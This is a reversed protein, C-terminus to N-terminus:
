SSIFHVLDPNWGQNQRKSMTVTPLSKGHKKQSYINKNSSHKVSKRRYQIALWCHSPKLHVAFPSLWVYVHMWEGGFKGGMWAAVYCQAFNWTGYLLDKNTIWKLCLLTYMAMGFKRAIGEEGQKRQCGYTWERTQSDRQKTLENTGKKKKKLNWMFPIDHSIEGRDSKSWENPCDRPRNMNSCIANNLEKWYGTGEKYRLQVHNKRYNEVNKM